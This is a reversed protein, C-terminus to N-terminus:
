KKDTISEVRTAFARGRLRAISKPSKRKGCIPRTRGTPAGARDGVVPRMRQGHQEETSRSVRRRASPREWALSFRQTPPRPSRGVPWITTARGRTVCHATSSSSTRRPGIPTIQGASTVSVPLRCGSAFLQEAVLVAFPGSAACGVIGAEGIGDLDFALLETHYCAWGEHIRGAGTRKLYRVVDGDPDLICIKPLAVLPLRRQRRAERLLTEPRFVSPAQLDKRDVIPWAIHARDINEDM